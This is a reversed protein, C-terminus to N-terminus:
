FYFVTPHVIDTIHINDGLFIFDIIIIIIIIIIAGPGDHIYLLFM